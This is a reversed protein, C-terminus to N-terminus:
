AARRLRRTRQAQVELFLDEPTLGLSGAPPLGALMEELRSHIADRIARWYDDM